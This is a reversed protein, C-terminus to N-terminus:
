HVTPKGEKLDFTKLAVLSALLEASTSAWSSEFDEGKFLWPVQEAFHDLSFWDAKKPDADAGLLWGGM